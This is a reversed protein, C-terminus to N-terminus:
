AVGALATKAFLQHPFLSVLLAVVGLSKPYVFASPDYKYRLMVIYAAPIFTPSVAVTLMLKSELSPLSNSIGLRGAVMVAVPPVTLASFMLRTLPAAERVYVSM